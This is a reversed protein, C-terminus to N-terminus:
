AKRGPDQRHTPSHETRAGGNFGQNLATTLLILLFLLAILTSNLLRNERWYKQFVTEQFLEPSDALEENAMAEEGIASPAIAQSDYEIPQDM